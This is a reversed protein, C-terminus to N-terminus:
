VDQKSNFFRVADRAYENIKPHGTNYFGCAIIWNDYIDQLHRLYRIGIKTNLKVDTLLVEPTIDDKTIGPFLEPYKEVVYKGTSLIIQYSGYANATSTQSPNYDFRNPGKYGTELKVVSFSIEEPVTFEACYKKTYFYIQVSHPALQIYHELADQKSFEYLEFGRPELNLTISSDLTIDEISKYGTTLLMSLALFLILITQKM